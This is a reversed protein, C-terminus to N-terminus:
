VDSIRPLTLEEPTELWRVDWGYRGWELLLLGHPTSYLAPRQWILKRANALKYAESEYVKRPYHDGVTLLTGDSTKLAAM